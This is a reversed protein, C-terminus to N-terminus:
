LLLAPTLLIACRSCIFLDLPTMFDLFSYLYCFPVPLCQHVTLHYWTCPVAFICYSEVDGEANKTLLSCLHLLSWAVDNGTLFLGFSMILVQYGVSRAVRTVALLGPWISPIGMQGPRWLHLLAFAYTHFSLLFRYSILYLNSFNTKNLVSTMHGEICHDM